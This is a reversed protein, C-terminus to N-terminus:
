TRVKSMLNGTGKGEMEKRIAVAAWLAGTANKLQGGTDIEVVERLAAILEKILPREM